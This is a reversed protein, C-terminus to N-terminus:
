HQRLVLPLYVLYAAGATCWLGACISYPEQSVTGVIAQGVTGDLVYPAAELHGGGGSTVAWDIAPAQFAQTASAGLLCSLLAVALLVVKRKSM